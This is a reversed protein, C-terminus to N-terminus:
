RSPENNDEVFRRLAQVVENPSILEQGIVQTSISSMVDDPREEGEPREEEDVVGDM